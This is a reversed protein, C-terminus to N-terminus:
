VARASIVNIIKGNFTRENICEPFFHADQLMVDNDDEWCSVFCLLLCVINSLIITREVPEVNSIVDNVYFRKM